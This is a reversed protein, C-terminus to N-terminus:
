SSLQFSLCATPSLSGLAPLPPLLVPPRPPRTPERRPPQPPLSASQAAPRPAPPVSQVERHTDAPHVARHTLGPEPLLGLGSFLSLSLCRRLCVWPERGQSGLGLALECCGAPAAGDGRGPTPTWQPRCGLLLHLLSGRSLSCLSMSAWPGRRQAAAHPPRRLPTAARVGRPRPCLASSHRLGLDM